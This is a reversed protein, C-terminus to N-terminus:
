AEFIKGSWVTVRLRTCTPLGKGGGASGGEEMYERLVQM